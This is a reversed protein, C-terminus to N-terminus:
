EEEAKLEASLSFTLLQLQREWEKETCREHILSFSLLAYTDMTCAAMLWEVM